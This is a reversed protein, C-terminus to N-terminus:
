QILYDQFIVALGLFALFGMVDTVTTLIISSSQAPDIGMKKMILPTSSGALGAIILNIVMGLGIVLGFWGNGYLAYAILATILGIVLGNLLGIKTEKLILTTVKNQPIERMVLGRMVVALSQAGANGGQGAIVPLFVALITLRAIIDEFLAVVGAALFATVLNVNLWLLRKKLAFGIPSFVREDKGVGFMTQMDKTVDEKVGRLMNEAKITGLLHNESDVIPVAFYKRKSMERAAEERDTFCHITFVDTKIINKLLSDPEALMLDRMNLVGALVDEENVVYVYSSATSNGAFLKRIQRIAKEAKIDEKLMIINSSMYRGVSGEPYTLIDRIEDALKGTIYPKLQERALPSLHMVISAAQRPEVSYLITQILEPENQELLSASYSVQLRKLIKAKTAAPLAKLVQSSTQKPLEEIIKVSEAIDNEVLKATFLVIESSQYENDTM